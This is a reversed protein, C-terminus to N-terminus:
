GMPLNATDGPPDQIFRLNEMQLIPQYSFEIWSFLSHTFHGAYDQTGLRHELWHKSEGDGM